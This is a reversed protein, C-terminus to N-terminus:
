ETVTTHDNTKQSKRQRDTQRDTVSIFEAVASPRFSIGYSKAAVSGHDGLLATNSLGTGWHSPSIQPDSAGNTL